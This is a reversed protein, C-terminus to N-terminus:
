SAGEQLGQLLRNISGNLHTERLAQAWVSSTDVEVVRDQVMAGTLRWQSVTDTTYVAAIKKLNDPANGTFLGHTICAAFFEGGRGTVAREVDRITSGTAMIDDPSIVVAGVPEGAKPGIPFNPDEIITTIEVDEDGRRVKDAHAFGVPIPGGARASLFRELIMQFSKTRKTAGMDPTLVVVRRHLPIDESVARALLCRAELHDFQMSLASCANQLAAVNHVDMTVLRNVGAAWMQRVFAATNIAARPADKQDQRMYPFMTGFLTIEACSADLLSHIFLITGWVKEDVTENRDSAFSQFIYVKRGRVNVCSRASFERDHRRWEQKEALRFGPIWVNSIWSEVRKPIMTAGNMAFVVPIQDDQLMIEGMAYGLNGLGFGM